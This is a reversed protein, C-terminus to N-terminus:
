VENNQVLSQCSNSLSIKYRYQEKWLDKTILVVQLLGLPSPLTHPVSSDEPLAIAQTMTSSAISISQKVQVLHIHKKYKKKYQKTYKQKSKPCKIKVKKYKIKYTGTKPNFYFELFNFYPVGDCNM